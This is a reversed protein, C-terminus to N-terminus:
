WDAILEDILQECENIKLSLFSAIEGLTIPIDSIFILAEIKRKLNRM